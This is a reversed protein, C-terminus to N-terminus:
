GRVGLKEGSFRTVGATLLEARLSRIANADPLFRVAWGSQEISAVANRQRTERVPEVCAESLFEGTPLRRFHAAKFAYVSFEFHNLEERDGEAFLIV